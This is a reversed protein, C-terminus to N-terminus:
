NIQRVIEYEISDKIYIGAGGANTKSDSHMFNYGDLNINVYNKDHKLKTETIVIVDRYSKLESIFHSLKDVNKLM